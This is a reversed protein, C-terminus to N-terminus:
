NQPPPGDPGRGPSRMGPGGQGPGGPGHQSMQQLRAQQEDTLISKLRKDVLKQLAELQKKQAATLELAESMFDPLIQGPQMMPPGGPGEPGGGPPFGGMGPGGGNPGDRDPGGGGPGGRFGGRQNSSEEEFLAVLEDKSAIGDGNKDARQILPKLRADTVEDLSIAGDQNTDFTKLRALFSEVNMNNAGRGPRGPGQSFAFPTIALLGFTAAICLIKKM